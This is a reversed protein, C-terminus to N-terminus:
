NGRKRVFPALGFLGTGLLFLSTPEPTTTTYPQIDLSTFQAGTYDFTVPAYSGIAFTPSDLAGTFMAVGNVPSLTLAGALYAAFGGGQDSTYFQFNWPVTAPSGNTTMTTTVNSLEFYSDDYNVSDVTPSQPLVSSFSFPTNDFLTGTGSLIVSQAGLPATFLAAAILGLFATRNRM